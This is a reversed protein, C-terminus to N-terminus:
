EKVQRQLAYISENQNVIYGISCVIFLFPFLDYGFVELGIAIPALFTNTAAGFVSAYGM